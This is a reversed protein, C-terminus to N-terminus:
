MEELNNHLSQNISDAIVQGLQDIEEDIDKPTVVLGYESRKLIKGVVKSDNVELEQLVQQLIASAEVVTAVGIAIVPVGLNDKTLGKRKNGIGSGPLIGTDTIQIMRNIRAIQLSALADIAIILKGKYVDNIAKIIDATELGTQGMVGPAFVAVRKSGSPLDFDAYEVIHNTVIVKESAVPGLSDATIRLNGLGVVLIKDLEKIKYKNYLISLEKSIRKSLKNREQQDSLSPFEFSFYDGIPKGLENPFTSINVAMFKINGEKKQKLSYSSNAKKTIMEQAFDTHPSFSFSVM